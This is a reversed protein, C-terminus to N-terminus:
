EPMLRNTPRKRSRESSTKQAYMIGDGTTFRAGPAGASGSGAIKALLTDILFFVTSLGVFGACIVLFTAVSIGFLDQRRLGIASALSDLGNRTGNLNLLVNPLAADLYLPSNVNALQQDFPTSLQSPM